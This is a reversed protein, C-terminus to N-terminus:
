VGRANKSQLRTIKAKRRHQRRAVSHHLGSNHLPSGPAFDVKMRRAVRNYTKQHKAIKRGRRRKRASALSAKRQASRQKASRAM